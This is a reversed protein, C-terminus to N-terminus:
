RINSYEGSAMWCVSYRALTAGLDKVEVSGFKMGQSTIGYGKIKTDMPSLVPAYKLTPCRKVWEVSGVRTVFINGRLKEEVVAAEEPVVSQGQQKEETVVGPETVVTKWQNKEEEVAGQGTKNEM